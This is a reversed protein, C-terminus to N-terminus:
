HHSYKARKRYNYELELLTKHINNNRMMIQRSEKDLARNYQKFDNIKSNYETLIQEHEWTSQTYSLNKWKVLYLKDIEKGLDLSDILQSEILYNWNHYTEEETIDCKANEDILWEFNLVGPNFKEIEEIPINQKRKVPSDNESIEQEKIKRDQMEMQERKIKQMQWNNILQIEQPQEIKIDELKQNALKFQLESEPNLFQDKINKMLQDFIITDDSENEKIDIMLKDFCDVSNTLQNTKLFKKIQEKFDM